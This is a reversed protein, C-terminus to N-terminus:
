FSVVQNAQQPPTFEALSRAYLIDHYAGDKHGQFTTNAWTAITTSGARPGVPGWRWVAGREAVGPTVSQGCLAALRSCASRPARRWGIM